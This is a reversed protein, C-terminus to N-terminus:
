YYRYLVRVQEDSDVLFVSVRNASLLNYAVSIIRTIIAPVEVEHSVAKIMEVLGYARRQAAIATQM